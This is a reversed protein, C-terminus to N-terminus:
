RLSYGAEAVADAVARAGSLDLALPKELLVAKGAVAAVPALAAQVDPPVAFAVAECDDLLADFSDYVRVGFPTAVAAAAERRRSWVGTLVTEPGAALTPAHMDRAWAGSGVLAVRVPPTM